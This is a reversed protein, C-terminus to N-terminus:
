SGLGGQLYDIESGWGSRAEKSGGKREKGSELRAKGWQDEEVM